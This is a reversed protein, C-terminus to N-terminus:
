KVKIDKLEETKGKPVTIETGDKNPYFYDAAEHWAVIHLKADNPVNKIEFTGDEKTVAAYPHDFVWVKGKMWTHVDCAVEVPGTQPHLDVAKSSGAPLTESTAKNKRPDGTFKTNHSIKASNKVKFTQGSKQLEKGDFYAPYLALVHPIFACHPQDLVVEDSRKKDAASPEFYKDAPAKLFILVNAVGKNDKNVIWRQDCNEPSGDPAKCGDTKMIQPIIM